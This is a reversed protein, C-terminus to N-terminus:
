YSINIIIIMYNERRKSVYRATEIRLVSALNNRCTNYASHPRSKKRGDNLVSEYPSPIELSCSDTASNLRGNDKKRHSRHYCKKKPVDLKDRSVDDFDINKDSNKISDMYDLSKSLYQKERLAMSPPLSSIKLMEEARIRKKLARYFEEERMRDYAYNSFLNKPIPKAKFKVIPPPTPISYLEPNSRALLM